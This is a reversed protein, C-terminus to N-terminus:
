APIGAIVPAPTSVRRPFRAEGARQLADLPSSLGHVPCFSIALVENHKADQRCLRCIFGSRANLPVGWNEM